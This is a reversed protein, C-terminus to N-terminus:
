VLGLDVQEWPLAEEGTQPMEARADRAAEILRRLEEADIVAAVRRGRRTLLVPGHAVSELEGNRVHEPGRVQHKTHPNVAHPRADAATDQWVPRAGSWVLSLSEHMRPSGGTSPQGPNQCKTGTKGERARPGQLSPPQGDHHSQQRGHQEGDVKKTRMHRMLGSM